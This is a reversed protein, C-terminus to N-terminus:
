YRTFICDVICTIFSVTDNLEAQIKFVKQQLTKVTIEM